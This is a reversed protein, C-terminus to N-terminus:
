RAVRGHARPGAVDPPIASSLDANVHAGNFAPAPTPLAERAEWLEDAILIAALLLLRDDTILGTDSRFEEALADARDKVYGALEILRAEEGDTCRLTYTRGNITVAVQGM